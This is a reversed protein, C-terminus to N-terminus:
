RCVRIARTATAARGRTDIVTATVHHVGRKLGTTRWRKSYVSGAGVASGILRRGDHFVVTRVEATSDAVVFLQGRALACARSPPELWSVTPGDVVRLTAQLFATNPMLADGVTNINKAEQYDSAAVISKTRGVDLSPAQPPLGFVVLGSAPDYLSAGILVRDYAFVLSLPDVGSQTDLVQAVILPRGATVRTTLLRATPPTLDNSWANLLYKGKQPRNTYADARSDVAVYFRQLRPFQVGAAGIDFGGDFTLPNVDTPIGAYGQVDNEDKSGLVFPDILAGTSAALVSVGFNAVPEAIDTYYLHEAGDENM